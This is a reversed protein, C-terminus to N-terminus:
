AVAKGNKTFQVSHDGIRVTIFEDVVVSRGGAVLASRGDRHLLVTGNTSGLDQVIPEGAESLTVRLHNKSVERALDAVAIATEGPQETPNRGLVIPRDLFAAAAGDLLVTWGRRFAPAFITHELHEEAPERRPAGALVPERVATPVGDAGTFVPVPTRVEVPDAGRRLDAAIRRAHPPRHWGVSPFGGIAALRIGGLRWGPTLGRVAFDMVAVAVAILGAVAIAPGLEAFRTGRFSLSACVIAAVLLVDVGCALVVRWVPAAIVDSTAPSPKM